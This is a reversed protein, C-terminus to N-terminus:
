NIENKVIKFRLGTIFFDLARKYLRLANEYEQKNDAEIAEQVIKVAQPIFNNSM